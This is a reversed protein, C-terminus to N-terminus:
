NVVAVLKFLFDVMTVAWRQQGLGGKLFAGGPGGTSCGSRSARCAQAQSRRDESAEEERRALAVAWLGM